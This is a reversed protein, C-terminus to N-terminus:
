ITDTIGTTLRTQWIIFYINIQRTIRPTKQNWWWISGSKCYKTLRRWCISYMMSHTGDDVCPVRAAASSYHTKSRMRKVNKQWKHQRLGNVCPNSSRTVWAKKAGGATARERDTRPLANFSAKFQREYSASRACGKCAASFVVGFPYFICKPVSWLKVPPGFNLL